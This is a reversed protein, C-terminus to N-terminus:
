YVLIQSTHILYIMGEGDGAVEGEVGGRAAHAREAGAVVSYNRAHRAVFALAEPAFELGSLALLGLHKYGLRKLGSGV